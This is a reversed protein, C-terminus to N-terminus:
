PKAKRGLLLEFGITSADDADVEVGGVEDGVQRL